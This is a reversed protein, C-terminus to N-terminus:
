RGEVIRFDRKAANNFVKLAAKYGDSEYAALAKQISDFEVVVVTQDVGAEYTKAPKGVVILHGGLAELAPGAVKAYDALAVPNSMSEYCVVWYGKAM